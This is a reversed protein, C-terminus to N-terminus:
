AIIVGGGAPGSTAFDVDHLIDALFRRCHMAGKVPGTVACTGSYRRGVIQRPSLAERIVKVNECHLPFGVCNTEINVVHKVSRTSPGIKRSALLPYEIM